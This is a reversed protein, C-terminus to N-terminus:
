AFSQPPPPHCSIDVFWITNVIYLVERGRQGCQLLKRASRGRGGPRSFFQEAPPAPPPPPVFAWKMFGGDGRKPQWALAREWGSVHRLHRLANFRRISLRRKGGPCLYVTM